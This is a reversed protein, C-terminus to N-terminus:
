KRGFFKIILVFIILVIVLNIIILALTFYPEKLILTTNSKTDYVDAKNGGPLTPNSNILSPIITEQDDENNTNDNNNNNQNNTTTNPLIAPPTTPTTKTCNKIQIPLLKLSSLINSLYYSRIDINYTGEKIQAPLQLTYQKGIISDATNQNADISLPGDIIKIGLDKNEIRTYISNEDSSGLNILNFKLEVTRECTLISKTLQENQIRIDHLRKNIIMKLNWTDTQVVRNGDKGEAYIEVDYTAEDVILPVRFELTGSKTNQASLDFDNSELEVDNGDDVERLTVRFFTNRLQSIESDISSSYENLLRVKFELPMDPEADKSITDGDGLNSIDTDGFKADFRDISLYSRVDINFPNSVFVTGGNATIIGGLKQIKLTTPAYVTVLINQSSNPAMSLISNNFTITPGTIGSYGIQVNPLFVNQDNVVTITTQTTSNLRAILDISSPNIQLANASFSFLVLFITISFLVISKQMNLKKQM